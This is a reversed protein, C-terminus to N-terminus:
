DAKEEAALAEANEKRAEVEADPKTTVGELKKAAKALAEARKEEDTLKTAEPQSPADPAAREFGPLDRVFEGAANFFRGGQLYKAPDNAPGRVTSHAKSSDFKSSNRPM